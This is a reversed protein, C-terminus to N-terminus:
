EVKKEQAIAVLNLKLHELSTKFNELDSLGMEEISNEWWSPFFSGAMIQAELIAQLHMRKEELLTEFAEYQLNLTELVSEQKKRVKNARAYQNPNPDLNLYGRALYRQIVTDPNPYGCVDLNGNESNILVLATEAECLISLETVKNFLGVRHKSFIVSEKNKQKVKKIEIVSEKNKQEVKKSEIKRKRTNPKTATNAESLGM